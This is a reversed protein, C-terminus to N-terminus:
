YRNTFRRKRNTIMVLALVFIIALPMLLNFMQWQGKKVLIKKRDLMRLKVERTRVNLLDPGDILYNMCNLLFTRNAYTTRMYKDYGLQSYTFNQYSFDNFIVDGDSVVIMATKKGVEKFAIGSDTAIRYTLRNRFVSEFEGELLVSMIRNGKNFQKENPKTNVMALSVRAPVNQVRSYKSSSLLVTKKIEPSGVTDIYGAFEFRILDLNKVIPHESQPLVLPKYFWPYLQFNPAGGKFGKNVPISGCQLDLVLAPNVRAGYSFLMDSLNINNELGLTYGKLRLTDLNTYVPEICWLVKGGRMIFQDLIFKDKEDWTTDPWAVVAADFPNLAKLQNNIKLYACDYYESFADYIDKTHLTDLERHGQIFAVRPRASRQLKRIANALEYELMKVSNNVCEEPPIGIQQRFIQWVSERGKYTVFAGPFIVQTKEGKETKTRIETPIIGKQYLQRQINELEKANKEDYINIIEYNFDVKSAARFQDLMLRSEDKLRTFAANFDGDFYVKLYVDDDLSDLMKQTTPSLTYRKESTLDFRKSVYSSLVNLVAIIALLVLLKSIDRRKRNITKVESM